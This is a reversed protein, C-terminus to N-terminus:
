NEIYKVLKKMNIPIKTKDYIRPLIITTLKPLNELELVNYTKKLSLVELKELNKLIIKNYSINELYINKLETFSDLILNSDNRIIHTQNLKFYELSNKFKILNFSNSEDLFNQKYFCDITLFKLKISDDITILSNFHQGLVLTKLKPCNELSFNSNYFADLSIKELNELNEFICECDLNIDLIFDIINKCNKITLKKIYTTDINCELNKFFIKNINDLIIENNFEIDLGRFETLKPCNTIQIKQNFKDNVSITKLDNYSELILDDNYSNDLIINTIIIKYYKDNFTIKNPLIKTINLKWINDEDDNIVIYKSLSLLCWDKYHNIDNDFSKDHYFYTKLKKNIEINYHSEDFNFTLSDTNPFKFVINGYKEIFIVSKKQIAISFIDEDSSEENSSEEDSSSDDEVEVIIDKKEFYAWNKIDDIFLYNLVLLINQMGKGQIEYKNDHQYQVNSINSCKKAWLIKNDITKLDSIPKSIYDKIEPKLKFHDDTDIDFLKMFNLYRLFNLISNEGCNPYDYSKDDEIFKIDDDDILYFSEQNTYIMNYVYDNFKDDENLNINCYYLISETLILPKSIGKNYTENYFEITDILPFKTFIFKDYINNIGNIYFNIDKIDQILFNMFFLCHHFLTLNNIENDSLKGLINNCIDKILENSKFKISDIINKLNYICIDDEWEYNCYDIKKCIIQKNKKINDKEQKIISKFKKNIQKNSKKQIYNDYIIKYINKSKLPITNDIMNKNCIINKENIYKKSIKFKIYYLALIQGMDYLVKNKNKISNDYKNRLKYNNFKDLLTSQFFNDGTSRLKIDQKKAFNNYLFIYGYLPNLYIPYKDEDFLKIYKQEM